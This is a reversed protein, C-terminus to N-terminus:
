AAGSLGSQLYQKHMTHLFQELRKQGEDTLKVIIRRRDIPDTMKTALGSTVLDEFRRIATTLPVGAAYCLATLYTQEGALTAAYLELLMDWCPDSFLDANVTRHRVKRAAILTNVLSRYNEASSGDASSAAPMEWEALARRVCELLARPEVPKALFDQAGLRLAMVADTYTQRGSVFIVKPLRARLSLRRLETVFALGDMHPMMVDTVIVQISLRREVQLLAQVGDAASTAPWGEGEMMDLLETRSPEDDEVILIKPAEPATMAEHGLM